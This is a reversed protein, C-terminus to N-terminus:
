AEDALPVPRSIAHHGVEEPFPPIKAGAVPTLNGPHDKAGQAVHPQEVQEYM